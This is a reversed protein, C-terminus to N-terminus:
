KGKKRKKEELYISVMKVFVLIAGGSLSVAFWVLLIEFFNM